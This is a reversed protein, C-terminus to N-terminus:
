FVESAGEVCQRLRAVVRSRAVYVAGVSLGLHEAARPIPWGEVCTLWFAQWSAPRFQQRVQDAAWRFLQMRYERDFEATADSAAPQEDLLRVMDTGGVGRPHRRQHVLYNIVLNRTIRRLWGRFSGRRPDCEWRHIAQSVTALVQQVVDRADSEQLGQREALRQILPEYLSVFEGWAREDQANRLRVLLSMRTEPISKM